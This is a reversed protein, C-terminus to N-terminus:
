SMKRKRFSDISNVLDHYSDYRKLRDELYKEQRMYEGWSSRCIKKFAKHQVNKVRDGNIGLITGVEKYTLENAGNWGYKLKIIEREKLTCYTNMVQNLENHLQENYVKDMVEGYSDYEDAIFEILEGTEEEGVAKNLSTEENTNKQSLFRSVKQRIWFVAYTSFQAANEINPDYKSASVMLGIYGEQILDDFDISATKETYFSNAM